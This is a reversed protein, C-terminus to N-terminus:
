GSHRISWAILSGNLSKRLDKSESRMNKQYTFEARNSIVRLYGEDALEDIFGKLSPLGRGRRKGQQRSVGIMVADRLRDSESWMIRQKLTKEEREKITAPIGDGQDFFLFMVNNKEFDCYGAMWWEGELHPNTSARDYAHIRVNDMCEILASFLRKRAILQFKGNREFHRILADAVKGESRVGEMIKFYSQDYNPRPPRRINLIRFMGIDDLTKMVKADQPWLGSIRRSGAYQACRKIETIFVLAAAPSLEAVVSLDIRIYVKDGYIISHHIKGIFELTDDMADSLNLATPARIIKVGRTPEVPQFRPNTRSTRRRRKNPNYKATLRALRYKERKRQLLTNIYRRKKAGRTKM